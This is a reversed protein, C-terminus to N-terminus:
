NWSTEKHSNDAARRCPRCEPRVFSRPVGETWHRATSVKLSLSGALLLLWIWVPTTLPPWDADPEVIPLWPAVCVLAAATGQFWIAWRVERITTADTAVLRCFCSYFLAISMATQLGLAIILSM